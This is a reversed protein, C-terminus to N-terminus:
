DLCGLGAPYTSSQWRCHPRHAADYAALLLQTDPNSREERMKKILYSQALSRAYDREEPIVHALENQWNLAFMDNEIDKPKKWDELLMARLRDMVEQRVPIELLWGHFAVFRTVMSETLPPIGAAISRQAEDYVTM